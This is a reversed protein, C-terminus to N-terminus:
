LLRMEELETFTLGETLGVFRERLRELEEPHERYYPMDTRYVTSSFFSAFRPGSVMRRREERDPAELELIKCVPNNLYFWAPLDNLKNVLLILQNQKKGSPTRVWSASLASQLLINFSNVDQQDMREPTTVYHSAMELVTVTAAEQQCMARRIVNPATNADNGKFEAQIGRQTITRGTLAAYGGLMDPQM